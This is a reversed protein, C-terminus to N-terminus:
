RFDAFRRAATVTRAAEEEAWALDIHIHDVLRINRGLGFLYSVKEGQVVGDPGRPRVEQRWAASDEGEAM